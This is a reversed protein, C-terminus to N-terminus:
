KEQPSPFSGLLVIGSSGARPVEPTLRHHLLPHWTCLAGMIIPLADWILAQKGGRQAQEDCCGHRCATFFSTKCFLSSDTSLTAQAPHDFSLAPLLTNLRKQIGALLWSGANGGPRLGQLGSSARTHSSSGEWM